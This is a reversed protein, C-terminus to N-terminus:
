VLEGLASKLQPMNENVFENKKLWQIYNSDIRQIQLITKGKYNGWTMLFSGDDNVFKGKLFESIAPNSDILIKQNLLWRCYGPDCNYVETITKAKHEGTLRNYTMENEFGVDGVYQYGANLRENGHGSHEPPVDKETLRSVGAVLVRNTQQWTQYDILGNSLEKTQDGNISALKSFENCFDM